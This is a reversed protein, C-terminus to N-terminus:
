AGLVSSRFAPYAHPTVRHQGLSSFGWAARERCKMRKDEGSSYEDSDDSDITLLEVEGGELVTSCVWRWEEEGVFWLWPM